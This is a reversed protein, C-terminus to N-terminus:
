KNMKRLIKQIYNMQFQILIKEIDNIDNQIQKYHNQAVSLEENNNKLDIILRCAYNLNKIFEKPNDNYM